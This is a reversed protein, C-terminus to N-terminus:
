GAAALAGGGVVEERERERARKRERENEKESERDRVRLEEVTVPDDPSKVWQEWKAYNPGTYRSAASAAATSAASTTSADGSPAVLKGTVDDVDPLDRQKSFFALRWWREREERAEKAALEAAWKRNLARDREREAVEDAAATASRPARPVSAPVGGASSQTSPAAVADSPTSLLSKVQREVQM